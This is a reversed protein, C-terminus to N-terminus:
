YWLGHRVRHPVPRGARLLELDALFSTVIRVDELPSLAATHPSQLLRPADWLPDDAGRPEAAAVDLVAGALHDSRLAQALADEDVCSGRGVNVVAGGPPLAALLAEDLLGETEPTGPLALVLDDAGAVAEALGDFGHVRAVGDPPPGDPHRRVGEVHMGLAACRTAVERGISGLGLVLLRRGSLPTMAWRRPWTHERQDDVLRFLGKHVALLGFLAFEALPVVHVGASTTLTVRDLVEPSLGARRAHEGTGAATGQVWTVGQLEGVVRSLGAPDDGPYGVLATCGALAALLEDDRRREPDGAHDATWRQPPLLDAPHVVELDAGRLLDLAEPALPVAVGVVPQAAPARGADNTM